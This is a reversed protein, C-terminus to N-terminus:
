PDGTPRGGRRLPGRVPRAGRVPRHAAAQDGGLDDRHSSSTTSADPSARAAAAWSSPAPSSGSSGPRVASRWPVGNALAVLRQRDYRVELQVWREPELVGPRTRLILREGARSRGLEDLRRTVVGVEVSGDARADLLVVGGLDAIRAEQVQLPCLAMALRFGRRVAFAPDETLDFSVKAGRGGLDLGAGSRHFRRGHPDDRPLRGPVRGRRRRRPPVGGRLALHRRRTARAGCRDPRPTSPWARRRATPSPRTGPRASPTPWSAAPRARAPTSPRSAGIGAGLVLGMILMVVASSWSRSAAGPGDGGPLADSEDAGPDNAGTSTRSTTRPGSSGDSGASILQFTDPRYPDGTQTNIWATVRQEVWEDEDTVFTIYEGGREYDRRHLYAIPNDWSDKLEFVEASTFRTLSRKTDDGDTNILRDDYSANARYSGDAPMISIVMMEIGMNTESPRPDLDKSFRSPSTGTDREFSDVEAGGTRPVRTNSAAVAESSSFLNPVLVALLISLILIVALLEVLTFGARSIPPHSM